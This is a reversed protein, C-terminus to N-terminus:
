VFCLVKKRMWSNMAQYPIFRNNEDIPCASHANSGCPSVPRLLHNSTRPPALKPFSFASSYSPNCESCKGKANQKRFPDSRNELM